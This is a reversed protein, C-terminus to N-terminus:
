PHFVSHAIYTCTDTVLTPPLYQQCYMVWNKAHELWQTVLSSQSLPTHALDGGYDAMVEEYWTPNMETVLKYRQIISQYYSMAQIFNTYQLGIILNYPGLRCIECDCGM